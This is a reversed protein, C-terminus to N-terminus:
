RRAELLFPTLIGSLFAGLNISLYFWGFVKPLLGQNTSGFQDGVHASVCPKIGGSGIAILGLGILLMVKTDGVWEMCALFGHGLCYVLSPNPYNQIKGLFCRSNIRRFNSFSLCFWCVFSGMGGSRQERFCRVARGAPLSLLTMYALLISRMGYFSFREAWENAIIFPIGLPLVKTEIPHNRYM